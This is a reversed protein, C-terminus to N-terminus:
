QPHPSRAVASCCHGCLDAGYREAADAATGEAVVLRSGARLSYCSASSHVRGGPVVVCRPFITATM